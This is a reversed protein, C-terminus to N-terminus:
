MLWPTMFSLADFFFERFGRSVTQRRCGHHVRNKSANRRLFFSSFLHPPSAPACLSKISTLTGSELENERPTMTQLCARSWGPVGGPIM